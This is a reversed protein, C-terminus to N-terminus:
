RLLKSSIKHLIYRFIPSVLRRLKKTFMGFYIITPNRTSVGYKVRNYRKILLDYEISKESFKNKQIDIAHLYGEEMLITNHGMSGPRLRYIALTSDVYKVEPQLRFINMWCEWDEHNPLYENFFINNNKFIASKFLFCHVPISLHSEWDTILEHLPNLTRFRSNLYWSPHPRTLDDEISAFYSSISLANDGTNDLAKTQQNFKDPHIVDDADLFQIYKGRAFRLGANRASGLGGNEKKSYKFRPDMLIWARAVGETNDPSGDNIIICEWHSYTQALVSGLADPLYKDQNYCPIIVSVLENM